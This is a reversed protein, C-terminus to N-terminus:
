DDYGVKAIVIYGRNVSLRQRYAFSVKKEDNLWTRKIPAVIIRMIDSIPTGCFQNARYKGRMPGSDARTM